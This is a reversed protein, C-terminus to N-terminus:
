RTEGVTAGVGGRSMRPPRRGHLTDLDRRQLLLQRLMKARHLATGLDLDGVLPAADGTRQGALSSMASSRVTRSRAASSNGVASPVSSPTCRALGDEGALLDGIQGEGRVVALERDGGSRHVQRDKASGTETLPSTEEPM